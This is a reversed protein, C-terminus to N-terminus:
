LVPSDSIRVRPFLLPPPPRTDRAPTTAMDGVVGVRLVPPPEMLRRLLRPESIQSRSACGKHGPYLDWQKERMRSCIGFQKETVTSVQPLSGANWAAM